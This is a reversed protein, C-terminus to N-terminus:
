QMSWRLIGLALIKTFSLLEEIEIYEDVRHALSLDGPGFHISPTNDYLVRIRMDSAAPFGIVKTEGGSMEAYATKFTAIIPEKLSIEAPLVKLGFWEVRPPHEKLWDDTTSAESITQRVEEQVTEMKEGPLFEITGELLCEQPIASTYKGSIFKGVCIITSLPYQSYLPHSKGREHRRKELETIANYIIMGKEAASVGQYKVGAHAGKGEVHIRWFIAGRHAPMIACGTPEAFVAADARYEEYLSALSGNGSSEEDVVIELIVDGKPALNLDRLIELAKIMGAVGGKMDCAGRGYIRNRVIEAGWPDHTWRHVPEPTVVDTHGNLLLSRGGNGRHIGVVNPRNRYGKGTDLYEPHDKMKSIDPEWMRTELGIKKLHRHIYEQVKQEDGTVSPIRILDRFFEVVEDKRTDVTKRILLAERHMSNKKMGGNKEWVGCAKM